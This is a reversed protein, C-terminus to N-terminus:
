SIVNWYHIQKHCKDAFDIMRGPRDNKLHISKKIWASSPWFLTGDKTVSIFKYIQFVAQDTSHTVSIHLRNTTTKPIYMNIQMMLFIWLECLAIRRKFRIPKKLTLSRWFITKPWLFLNIQFVAQDTSHTRFHSTQENYDKPYVYKNAVYSFDMMWAADTSQSASIRLQNTITKPSTTPLLWKSYM